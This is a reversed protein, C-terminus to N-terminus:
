RKELQTSCERSLSEEIERKKKCVSFYGFMRADLAGHRQLPCPHTAWTPRPRHHPAQRGGAGRPRRDGCPCVPPSCCGPALRSDREAKLALRPTPWALGGTGTPSGMVRAARTGPPTLQGSCPEAWGCTEPTRRQPTYLIRMHTTHTHTHIQTHAITHRM